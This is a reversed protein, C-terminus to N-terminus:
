IEGAIVVTLTVEEALIVEVGPIETAAAEEEAIELTVVEAAGAMVGAGEVVEEAERDAKLM